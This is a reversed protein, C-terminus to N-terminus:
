RLIRELIVVGDSNKVLGRSLVGTLSSWSDEFGGRNPPLAKSRRAHSGPRGKRQWRHGPALKPQSGLLSFVSM